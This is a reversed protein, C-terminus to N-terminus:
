SLLLAILMVFGTLAVGGVVALALAGGIATLRLNSVDPVVALPQTPPTEPEMFAGWDQRHRAEHLLDLAGLEGGIARQIGYRAALHQLKEKLAEAQAKSNKDFGQLAQKSSDLRVEWGVTETVSRYTVKERNHSVRRRSVIEQRQVTKPAVRVAMPLFESVMLVPENSMFSVFGLGTLLRESPPAYPLSLGRARKVEVFLQGAAGFVLGLSIVLCPAMLIFDVVSYAENNGRLEALAILITLSISLLCLMGLLALPIVYVYRPSFSRSEEAPFREVIRQRVVQPLRNFDVSFSKFSHEEGDLHGNLDLQARIAILGEHVAPEQDHERALAAMAGAMAERVAPTLSRFHESLKALGNSEALQQLQDASLSDRPDALEWHSLLATASVGTSPPFMRRHALTIWLSLQAYDEPLSLYPKEPLM